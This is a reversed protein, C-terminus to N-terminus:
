NGMTANNSSSEGSSAGDSDDASDDVPRDEAEWQRGQSFSDKTDEFIDLAGQILDVITQSSGGIPGTNSRRVFLM